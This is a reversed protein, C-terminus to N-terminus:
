QANTNDMNPDISNDCQKITVELAIDGNLQTLRTDMNLDSFFEALTHPKGNDWYAYRRNYMIDNWKGPSRLMSGTIFWRPIFGELADPIPAYTMHTDSITGWVNNYIRSWPDMNPTDGHINRYEFSACGNNILDTFTNRM